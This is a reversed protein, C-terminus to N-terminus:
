LSRATTVNFQLYWVFRDISAVYRVIQDCCFGGSITTGAGDKVPSFIDKWITSPDVPKFTLGDDISVAACTNTGPPNATAFVVGGGSAGSPDPPFGANNMYATNQTVVLEDTPASPPPGSMTQDGATGSLQV